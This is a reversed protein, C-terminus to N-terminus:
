NYDENKQLTDSLSSKPLYLNFLANATNKTEELPQKNQNALIQTQLDLITKLYAKISDQNAISKNAKMAMFGFGEHPNNRDRELIFYENGDIEVEDFHYQIEEHIERFNPGETNGVERNECSVMSLFTLGIFVIPNINNKSTDKKYM